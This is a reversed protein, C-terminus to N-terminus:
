ITMFDTLRVARLVELNLMGTRQWRLNTCNCTARVPSSTDRRAPHWVRQEHHFRQDWLGAMLEDRILGQFCQTVGEELKGDRHVEVTQVGCSM